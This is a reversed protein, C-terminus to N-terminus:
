IWLHCPSHNDKSYLHPLQPITTHLWKSLTLFHHFCFKFEPGSIMNKFRQQIHQTLHHTLPIPDSNQATFVMPLVWQVFHIGLTQWCQDELKEQHQLAPKSRLPQRIWERFLAKTQHFCIKGGLISRCKLLNPFPAPCRSHPCCSILGAQRFSMELHSRQAQLSRKDASETGRPQPRKHSSHPMKRHAWCCYPKGLKHIKGKSQALAADNPPPQPLSIDYHKGRNAVPTM